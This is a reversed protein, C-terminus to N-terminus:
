ERERKSRHVTGIATSDQTVKVLQFRESDIGTSERERKSRHVTGIATSDQTVKVLQFRESDIGTSERERKIQHFFTYFASSGSVVM